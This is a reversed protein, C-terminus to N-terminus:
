GAKDPAPSVAPPEAPAAAPAPTAASEARAGTAAADSSADLPPGAPAPDSTPAPMMPKAPYAGTQETGPPGGNPHMAMIKENQAKWKRELEEMEAERIMADLGTRFHSSIRRLKGVFRGVVRLAAPLEKPGIVIVAVVIILLLEEAGIDFM